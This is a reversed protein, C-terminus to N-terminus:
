YARHSRHHTARHPALRDAGADLRVAAMADAAPRPWGSNLVGGNPHYFAYAGPESIAAQAFAATASSASLILAAAITKFNTMKERWANRDVTSRRSHRDVHLRAVAVPWGPM